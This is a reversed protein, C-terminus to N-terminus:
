IHEFPPLPIQRLPNFQAIACMNEINRNPKREKKQVFYKQITKLHRAAGDCM